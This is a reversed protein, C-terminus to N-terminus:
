ADSPSFVLCSLFANGKKSEFDRVIDTLPKPYVNGESDQLSGYIEYKINGDEGVGTADCIKIFECELEVVKGNKEKSITTKNGIFKEARSVLDNLQISNM